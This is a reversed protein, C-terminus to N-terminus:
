QDGRIRCRGALRLWTEIGAIARDVHADGLVRRRVASGAEFTDSASGPLLFDTLAANFAHPGELNSLHTTPLRVTRVGPIERALIESCGAWPTSVDNDRKTAYRFTAFQFHPISFARIEHAKRTSGTLISSVVEGKGLSHEVVSSRCRRAPKRFDVPNLVAAFTAIRAVHGSNACARAELRRGPRGQPAPPDYDPRMFSPGFLGSFARRSRRRLAASRSFRLRRLACALPREAPSGASGVPM